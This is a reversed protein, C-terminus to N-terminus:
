SALRRNESSSPVNKRTRTATPPPITLARKPPTGDGVPACTTAGPRITIHRDDEEHTGHAAGVEVGADADGSAFVGRSLANGGVDDGLKEPCDQRRQQQPSEDALLAGGAQREGPRADGGGGGHEPLDDRGAEDAGDKAGGGAAWCSPASVVSPTPRQTASAPRHPEPTLPADIFLLRVSPGASTSM